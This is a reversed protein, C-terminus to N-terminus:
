ASLVAAETAECLPVTCDSCTICSSGSADLAVDNAIVRRPRSYSIMVEAIAHVSIIKSTALM